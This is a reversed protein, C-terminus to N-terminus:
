DKCNKNFNYKFFKLFTQPELLLAEPLLHVLQIGQQQDRIKRYRTYNSTQSICNQSKCSEMIKRWEVPWNHDEMWYQCRYKVKKHQLIIPKIIETDWFPPYVPPAHGYLSVQGHLYYNFASTAFYCMDFKNVLFVYQLVQYVSEILCSISIIAFAICTKQWEQLTSISEKTESAPCTMVYIHNRFSV